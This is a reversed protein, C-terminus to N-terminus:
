VVAVSDKLLELTVNVFNILSWNQGQLQDVNGELFAM